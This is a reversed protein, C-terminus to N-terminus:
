LDSPFQTEPITEGTRGEMSQNHPHGIYDKPWGTNLSKKWAKIAGAKTQFIRGSWTKVANKGDNNIDTSKYSVKFVNKNICSNVIKMDLVGEDDTFQGSCGCAELFTRVKFAGGWDEIKGQTNRRYNGMVFM